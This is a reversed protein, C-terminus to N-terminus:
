ESVKMYFHVVFQGRITSFQVTRLYTWGEPVQGGTVVAQVFVHQIMEPEKPTDVSLWMVIQDCQVHIDLFQM